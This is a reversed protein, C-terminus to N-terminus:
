PVVNLEEFPPYEPRGDEGVNVVEGDRVYTELYGVSVLKQTYAVSSRGRRRRRCRGGSLGLGSGGGRRWTFPRWGHRPVSGEVQADHARIIWPTSRKPNLSRRQRTASPAPPSLSPLVM